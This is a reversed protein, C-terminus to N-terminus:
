EGLHGRLLWSDGRCAGRWTSECHYRLSAPASCRHARLLRRVAAHGRVQRLDRGLQRIGAAGRRCRRRHRARAAVRGRRRDDGGAVLGRLQSPEAGLCRLLALGRTRQALTVSWASNVIFGGVLLAVGGAALVVGGLIRVDDSTAGSREATDSSSSRAGVRPERRDGGRARDAAGAVPPGAVRPHWVSCPAGKPSELEDVVERRRRRDGSGRLRDRGGHIM